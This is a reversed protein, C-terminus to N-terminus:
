QATNMKVTAEFIATKGITQDPVPTTYTILDTFKPNTLITTDLAFSDIKRRKEIFSQAQILLQNAIVPDENLLLNTSNKQIFMFYGLGAVLVLIVIAMINKFTQTM